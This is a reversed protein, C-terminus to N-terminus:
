PLCSIASPSARVIEACPKRPWSLQELQQLSCFSLVLVHSGPNCISGGRGNWQCCKTRQDCKAAFSDPYNLRLQTSLQFELGIISPPLSTHALCCDYCFWSESGSLSYDSCLQSSSEFIFDKQSRQYFGDSRELAVTRSVSTSCM